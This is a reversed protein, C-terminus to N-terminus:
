QEHTAGEDQKKKTVGITQAILLEDTLRKLSALSDLNKLQNKLYEADINKQAAVQLAGKCIADAPPDCKKDFGEYLRVLERLDFPFKMSIDGDAFLEAWKELRHDLSNENEKCKGQWQERISIPVNGRSYCSIALGNRDGFPISDKDNANNPNKALKEASRAFELIDELMEHYHVVVIGVSLSVNQDKYYELKTEFDDHLKRACKLATDLPLFALVDDGGAYVCEGNHAKVIKTVGGAFNSLAISLKRHEDASKQASITKGIKDGDALLVALYPSKELAKPFQQKLVDFDDWDISDDQQKKYADKEDRIVPDIAILGLSGFKKRGGAFRKVVGIADLQEGKRLHLNKRFDDPLNNQLVTERAGDLSSKPLKENSDSPLFNRCLKRGALLQMVRKRSAQYDNVLPTWAAQFELFDDIQKDWLEDRLVNTNKAIEKVKQKANEAFEKWRNKAAKKAKEAVIKPDGTVEALVINAVSLTSDAALEKEEKENEIGPFILTGGEEKVAKAAAKAVESLLHSGFWLDRTKRAAAIFSQVPGISFVLLNKTENDSM